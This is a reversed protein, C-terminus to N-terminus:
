RKRKNQQPNAENFEVDEGEGLVENRKEPENLERVEQKVATRRKRPKPPKLHRGASTGRFREWGIRTAERYTAYGRPDGRGVLESYARDILGQVEPYRKLPSVGGGGGCRKRMSREDQLARVAKLIKIDINKCAKRKRGSYKYGYPNRSSPEFEEGPRYEFGRDGHARREPFSRYAM